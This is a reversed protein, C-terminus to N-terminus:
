LLKHGTGIPLLRTEKRTIDPGTGTGISCSQLTIGPCFPYCVAENKRKLDVLTSNSKRLILTTFLFTYSVTIRLSPNVLDSLIAPHHHTFATTCISSRIM